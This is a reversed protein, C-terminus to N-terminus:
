TSGRACRAVESHADARTPSASRGMAFAEEALQQLRSGPAAACSVEASLAEAEAFARAHAPAALWWREFEARERDTCDPAGLRAHWFSAEDLVQENRTKGM